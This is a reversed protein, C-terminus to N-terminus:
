STTEGSVDARITEWPTYDHAPIPSLFRDTLQKDGLAQATAEWDELVERLPESHGTQRVQAWAQALDALLEAREDENLHTVWPLVHALQDALAGLQTMLMDVRTTYM